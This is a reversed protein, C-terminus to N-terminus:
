RDSHTAIAQQKWHRAVSPSFLQDSPSSGESTRRARCRVRHSRLREPCEASTAGLRAYAGQLSRHCRHWPLRLREGEDPSTTAFDGTGNGDVPDNANRYRGSERTLEINKWNMSLLNSKRAGTFLALLVFDRFREDADEGLARFFREFEEQQLIQKRSHEPFSTIGIAPNSGTYIKWIAAKNFMARLLDIARNAAYPGRNRGITQHLNEVDDEM